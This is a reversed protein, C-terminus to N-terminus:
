NGTEKGDTTTEIYFDIRYGNDVMEKTIHSNKLWKEWDDPFDAILQKAAACLEEYTMM